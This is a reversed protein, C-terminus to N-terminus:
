PMVRASRWVGRSFFIQAQRQPAFSQVPVINRGFRQPVLADDPERHNRM